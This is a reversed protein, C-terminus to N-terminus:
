CYTCFGLRRFAGRETLLLLNNATKPIWSFNGSTAPLSLFLQADRGIPTLRAAAHRM